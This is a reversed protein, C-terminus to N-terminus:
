GSLEKTCTPCMLMGSQHQWGKPLKPEGSKLTLEGTDRETLLCTGLHASHCGPVDCKIMFSTLYDIVETGLPDTRRFSLQVDDSDGAHSARAPTGRICPGRQILRTGPGRPHWNTPEYTEGLVQTPSLGPQHWARSPMPM